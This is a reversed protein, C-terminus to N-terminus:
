LELLIYLRSKSEYIGELKVVNPHSIKELIEVEEKIM